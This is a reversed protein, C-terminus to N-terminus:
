RTQYSSSTPLHGRSMSTSFGRTVNRWGQIMQIVAFHRNCSPAIVHPWHKRLDQTSGWLKGNMVVSHRCFSTRIVVFHHCFSPKSLTQNKECFDVQHFSPSIVASVFRSDNGKLVTYQSMWKEVSEFDEDSVQMVCWYRILSALIVTSHRRFSPLIIINIVSTHRELSPLMVTLHGCFSM